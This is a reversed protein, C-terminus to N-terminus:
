NHITALFRKPQVSYADRFTKNRVHSGFSYFLEVKHVSQSRKKNYREFDRNIAQRMKDRPLKSHKRYYEIYYYAFKIAHDQLLDIANGFARALINFTMAVENDEWDRKMAEEGDEHLRRITNTKIASIFTSCGKKGGVFKLLPEVHIYIDSHNWKRSDCYINVKVLVDILYKVRSAAEPLKDNKKLKKTLSFESMKVFKRTAEDWIEM